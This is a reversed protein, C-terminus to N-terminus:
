YIIEEVAAKGDTITVIWLRNYISEDLKKYKNEGILLNVLAPTSNSHGAVVVTKGRIQLLQDAMAQLNKPDYLLIEKGFKKALPGVTSKTRTYNTSYILDPKYTKLVTLLRQARQEGQKTLPPDASMMTSGSLSTDKEAHRLLIYTSTQAQASSATVLLFIIATCIATLKPM